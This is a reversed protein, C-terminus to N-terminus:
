GLDQRELHAASESFEEQRAFQDIMFIARGRMSRNSFDGCLPLAL